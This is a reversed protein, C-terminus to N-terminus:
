RKDLQLIPNQGSTVMGKICKVDKFVSNLEM